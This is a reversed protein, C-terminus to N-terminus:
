KKGRKFCYTQDFLDTHTGSCPMAEKCTDCVWRKGTGECDPCPRTRKKPDKGTEWCTGCIGTRSVDQRGMM